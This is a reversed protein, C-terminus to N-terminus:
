WSSMACCTGESAGGPSAPGAPCAPAPKGASSRRPQVSRTEPAAPTPQPCSPRGRPAPAPTERQPEMEGGAGRERAASREDSARTAEARFGRGRGVRGSPTAESTARWGSREGSIAAETREAPLGPGAMGWPGVRWGPRRREAGQPTRRRPPFQHARRACRHPHPHRDRTAPLLSVCIRCIAPPGSAFRRMHSPAAQLHLCVPAKLHRNRPKNQSVDICQRLNQGACHSSLQM